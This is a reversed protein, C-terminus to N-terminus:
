CLELPVEVVEGLVRAVFCRLAAILPTPGHRQVREGNEKYMVAEWAYAGNQGLMTTPAIAFSESEILPGTKAWDTAYPAYGQPKGDLWIPFRRRNEVIMSVLWNLQEATAQATNIRVTRSQAQPMAEM